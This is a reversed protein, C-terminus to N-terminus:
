LQSNKFVRMDGKKKDSNSSFLESKYKIISKHSINARTGEFGYSFLLLEFHARKAVM